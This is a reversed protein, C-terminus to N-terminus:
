VDGGRDTPSFGSAETLCDKEGRFAIVEGKEIANMLTEVQVRTNKDFAQTQRGPGELWTRVQPLLVVNKMGAKTPKKKTKSTAETAQGSELRVAAQEPKSEVSFRKRPRTPLAYVNAM